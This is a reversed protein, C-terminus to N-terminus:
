SKTRALAEPQLIEIVAGNVRIVGQRSMKLFIRSLTEPTAGLLSALRGKSMDLEIRRSNGQKELRGQKESLGQKELLYLLYGALREPVEKLSLNEVQVTFQRLRLSLVGLMNMALSPNKTILQIFSERQIFITRALSVAQANAPFSGGSFVPVEGFPEGPGLMHLIQEKGDPSSKFVKVSGKDVIFFAAADDGESFILGGKPFSRYVSIASIKEYQDRDLGSFLPSHSITQLINEM